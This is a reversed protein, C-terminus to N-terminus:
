KGEIKTLSYQLNGEADTIAILGIDKAFYHIEWVDHATFELVVLNTYM